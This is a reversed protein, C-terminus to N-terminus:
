VGGPARGALVAGVTELVNPFLHDRRALEAAWRTAATLDGTGSTLTALLAEAEGCHGAFRATAYDAVQGTSIIFQWDSGMALLMARAAQALLPRRAADAMAAPAANWFTQEIAWLRRWTGATRDNLWMRDDGGAGWSGAALQIPRRPPAARLHEGATRPRVAAQSALSRYLQGLFEVGEFWWHGFLETDFPVAVLNDGRDPDATHAAEALLGAFHRAHVGARAVARDPQYPLKDGLDSGAPSVRWYKLGGPWRIKHFELYWEDGPYGEYRSWVQRSARPDRVLAAVRPPGDEGAIAYAQYPSNEALPVPAGDSPVPAPPATGAAAGYAGFPAGARAMHSDVFVYGFGAGAVMHEIGRRPGAGPAGPLPEWHGAPRYGCEPLWLGAPDRGFLRRHEAQGLLLQLQISEDRALLPLFAHTAASTVLEIRGADAHRRFASVLDGRMRRFAQQLGLLHSHWFGALPLLHVDGTRGLSGEADRCTALRQAMYAELEAGFDRSALQNALVPTIGLTLPARVGEAELRDLLLLLPLYSDLAAECLWDSGHPWRGHNLVWPLHSHLALVFDM